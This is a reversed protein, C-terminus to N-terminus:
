RATTSSHAAIRCGRRPRSIRGRSLSSAAASVSVSVARTCGARKTTSIASARRQILKPMRGSARSPWLRPSNTAAQRAPTKESASASASTVARPRRMAPVAAPAISDMSRASCSTRGSSPAENDSAASLPGEEVTTEPGSSATIRRSACRASRRMAFRRRRVEWAKWEAAMSGMRAANVASTLM